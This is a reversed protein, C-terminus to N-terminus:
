SRLAYRKDKSREREEARKRERDREPRNELKTNCDVCAIPACQVIERERTDREQDGKQRKWRGREREPQRLTEQTNALENTKNNTRMTTPSKHRM